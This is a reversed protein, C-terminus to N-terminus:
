FRGVVWGTREINKVIEGTAGTLFDAYKKDKTALLLEVAAEVRQLPSREKARDWLEQAIHLCDKLVGERDIVREIRDLM